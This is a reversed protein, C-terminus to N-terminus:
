LLPYAPIALCHTSVLSPWPDTPRESVSWRWGGRSSTKDPMAKQSLGDPVSHTLVHRHPGAWTSFRRGTRVCWRVCWRVCRTM